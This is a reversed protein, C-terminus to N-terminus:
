ETEKVGVAEPLTSNKLEATQWLPSTNDIIDSWMDGLEIYTSKNGWVLMEAAGGFVVVDGEKLTKPDIMSQEEGVALYMM